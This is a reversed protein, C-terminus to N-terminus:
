PYFCSGSCKIELIWISFAYREFCIRRAFTSGGLYLMSMFEISYLMGRNTSQADSTTHYLMYEDCTSQSNMPLTCVYMYAYTRGRNSVIQMNIETICHWLAHVFENQAVIHKRCTLEPFSINHEWFIMM